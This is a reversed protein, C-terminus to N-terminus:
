EVSLLEVEFILASNPPISGVQREGYGMEPPIFLRRKGGVKMGLLGKEWGEIVQGSGLTFSFPQGRDYSSDFKTGDILTGVYNVTLKKGDQAEQGEGIKIDETKFELTPQNQNAIQNQPIQSASEQQGGLNLKLENEPTPSPQIQSKGKSGFGIMVAVFAGFILFLFVLLGVNVKLEEQNEEV